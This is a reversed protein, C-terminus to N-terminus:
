HIAVLRMLQEPEIATAAFAGILTLAGAVDRCSVDQRAAPVFRGAIVALVAALLLSSAVVPMVLDAPLTAASVAAILAALTVACAFLMEARLSLRKRSPLVPRIESRNPV